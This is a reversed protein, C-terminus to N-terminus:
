ARQKGLAFLRPLDQQYESFESYLEMREIRLDKLSARHRDIRERWADREEGHQRSLSPVGTFHVAGREYLNGFLIQRNTHESELYSQSSEDWDQHLESLWTESYVQLKEYDAILGPLDSNNSPLCGPTLLLPLRALADKLESLRLFPSRVWKPSSIVHYSLFFYECQPDYFEGSTHHPQKPLSPLNM